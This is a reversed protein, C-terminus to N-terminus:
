SVDRFTDMLNIVIGRCYLTEGDWINFTVHDLETEFTWFPNEEPWIPDIKWGALKEKEYYPCGEECQNTIMKGDKLYVPWYWEDYIAGDLCVIDDSAGYVVLINEKQLLARLPLDVESRYQRGDLLEAVEDINM